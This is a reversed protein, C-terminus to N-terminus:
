TRGFEAWFPYHDSIHAKREDDDRADKLIFDTWPVHGATEYDLTLAERNGKTFWAIQDYHRKPGGDAFTINRPVDGFIAIIWTGILLNGPTKAPLKADLGKALAALAARTKAPPPTPALDAPIDLGAM